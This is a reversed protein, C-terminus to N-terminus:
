GRWWSISCRDVKYGCDYDPDDKPKMPVCGGDESEWDVEQGAPCGSNLYDSEAKEKAAKEAKM